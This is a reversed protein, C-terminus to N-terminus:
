KKDKIFSQIVYKLNQFDDENVEGKDLQNVLEDWTNTKKVPIYINSAVELMENPDNIYVEEYWEELQQLKVLIMYIKQFNFNTYQFQKRDIIDSYLVSLTTILGDLIYMGNHTSAAGRLLEKSLVELIFDLEMSHFRIVTCKKFCEWKKPTLDPIEVELKKDPNILCIKYVKESDLSNVLSVFDENNSLKM